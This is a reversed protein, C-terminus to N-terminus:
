MLLDPLPDPILNENQKGLSRLGDRAMRSFNRQANARTGSIGEEERVDEM